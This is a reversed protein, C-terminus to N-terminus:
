VPDALEYGRASTPLLALPRDDDKHFALMPGNDGRWWEGSLLVRRTRFRSARAIESLRDGRKRGEGGGGTPRVDIRMAGAVLQCALLLPDSAASGTHVEPLRGGTVGALRVLSAQVLRRDAEERKQLRARAAADAERANLALCRLILQHFAELG